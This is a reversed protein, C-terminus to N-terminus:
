CAKGTASMSLMKANKPYNGLRSPTLLPTMVFRRTILQNDIVYMEVQELGEGNSLPTLVHGHQGRMNESPSLVYSYM